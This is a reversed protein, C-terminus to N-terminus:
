FAHHFLLVDHNILARSIAQQYRWELRDIYSESWASLHYFFLSLSPIFTFRSVSVHLFHSYFLVLLYLESLLFSFFYFSIFLSNLIILFFLECIRLNLISTDRTFFLVNRFTWPDLFIATTKIVQKDSITREHMRNINGILLDWFCEPILLLVFVPLHFLSPYVGVVRSSTLHLALSGLTLLSHTWTIINHEALRVFVTGFPEGRGVPRMISSLVPPARTPRETGKRHWYARNGKWTTLEKQTGPLNDGVISVPVTTSARSFFLFFSFSLSSVLSFRPSLNVNNNRCFRPHRAWGFQWTRGVRSGFSPLCNWKIIPENSTAQNGQAFLQRNERRCISIYKRENRGSKKERDAGHSFHRKTCENELISIVSTIKSCHKDKIFFKQNLLTYTFVHM